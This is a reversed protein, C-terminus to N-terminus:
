GQTTSPVFYKRAYSFLILLILWRFAAAGISGFSVLAADMVILVIFTWKALKLRFMDVRERRHLQRSYVVLLILAVFISFSV